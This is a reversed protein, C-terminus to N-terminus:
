GRRSTGLVRWASQPHPHPHNGRETGRLAPSQTSFGGRFQVVVGYRTATAHAFKPGLQAPRMQELPSVPHVAARPRRCGTQDPSCSTFMKRVQRRVQFIAAAIQRQLLQRRCFQRGLIQQVPASADKKGNNPRLKRHRSRVQRRAPTIGVRQRRVIGPAAHTRTASKAPRWFGRLSRTALHGPQPPPYLNERPSNIRQQRM